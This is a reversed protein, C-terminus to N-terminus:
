NESNFISRAIKVPLRKLIYAGFKLKELFYERSIRYWLFSRLFRKRDFKINLIKGRSDRFVVQVKGSLVLNRYETRALRCNKHMTKLLGGQQLKIGLQNQHTRGFNAVVPLFGALYGHRIFNYNFENWDVMKQWSEPLHPYCEELIRKTTCLNGEPCSFGSILWFAFLEERQPPLKYYYDQYAVPGAVGQESLYQPYGYVLSVEPHSNLFDCCYKFWNENAFGDSVACQMVYKGRAMKLGKLFAEPYGSDKESIWKIHPYKKLISLTKDTSGGDIVIHEFNRFSQNAVSRITDELFKDTNYSCTIVSLEPNAINVLDNFSRLRETLIKPESGPPYTLNFITQKSM